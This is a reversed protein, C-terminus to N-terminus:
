KGDPNTVAYVLVTIKIDGNKTPTPMTPPYKPYLNYIRTKGCM